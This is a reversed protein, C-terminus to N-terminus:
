PSAMIRKAASYGTQLSVEISARYLGDGIFAIAQDMRNLDERMSAHQALAGPPLQVGGFPWRYVRTFLLNSSFGNWLADMEKLVMNTIEAKTKNFLTKSANKTLIATALGKGRPIRQHGKYHDLVLT